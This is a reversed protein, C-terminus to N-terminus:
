LLERVPQPHDLLPHPRGAHDIISRSPDIGLLHYLTAVVNQVGIHTEKPQEAKADTAGIVQGTRLGGGAFLVCGADPWHDRGASNNIRPTRGFEGWIMVAIDNQLGRQHIDTVLAHISRDLLPLLQRVGPFIAIVGGHHDWSGMSLTVIPVGAEALRRAQLFAHTDWREDSNGYRYTARPDGYLQRVSEPELSIDFADRVKTSSVINLAQATFTDHGALDGKADIERRLRDLERLLQRRDDLRDLTLDQQLSLNEVGQERPSFPAHGAGVYMPREYFNPSLAVYRPLETRHPAFRSIISGFAPRQALRPLGTYVESLDHNNEIFRVGRLIALKDMLAGQLPMQDCIDIGPVKTRMPNYEGRYELPAQPKMDWLDIHSPGGQLCIVIVSKPRRPPGLAPPASENGCAERQRLLAPLTLGLAGCAGVQLFRRRPLGGHNRHGDRILDLM